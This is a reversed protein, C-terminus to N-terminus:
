PQYGNGLGRIFPFCLMVFFVVVVSFWSKFIMKFINRTAYLLDSLLEFLIWCIEEVMRVGFNHSIQVPFNFINCISKLFELVIKLRPPSIVNM